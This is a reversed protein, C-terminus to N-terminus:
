RDSWILELKNGKFTTNFWEYCDIKDEVPKAGKLVDSEAVHKVAMFLEATALNKAICQRIGVNFPVFDRQMEASSNAWREPRFATPDHFVQPNSFLQPAAVGIVTGPPFFYGDFHWGHSPVIRPLHTNAPALRLGEKVVGSLYPLQQIDCDVERHELIENRLREYVAPHKAIYWLTVALVGGFSHTGAFIVDKCEAAIQEKPIGHQNLRGQYSVAKEDGESPLNLTYNHVAEASTTELEKQLRWPQLRSICFTSMRKSFYFFQSSDVFANLWPIMSTKDDGEVDNLYDHRFLYSCLTEFGLARSPEQIDVPRGQSASKITQLREVFHEVCANLRDTDKRIAAISFLQSVPKARTARYKPDSTSFMTPFGDVYFNQYDSTKLFGGKDVYIPGLAAGDAIDIMNPGIRLVKGYRRHLDQLIAASDGTWSHGLHWLSTLKAILPGPVKALPHLFIRYLAAFLLSFFVFPLLIYSVMSYGATWSANESVLITM